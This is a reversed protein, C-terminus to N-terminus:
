QWDVTSIKLTGDTQSVTAIGRAIVKHVQTREVQYSGDPLPLILDAKPEAATQAGNKRWDEMVAQSGFYTGKLSAAAIFLGLSDVIRAPEGRVTMLPNPARVLRGDQVQHEVSPLTGDVAVPSVVQFTQLAWYLNVFGPWRGLEHLKGDQYHFVRTRNPASSVILVPLDGGADFSYARFGAYKESLNLYEVGNEGSRVVLSDPTAELQEPTGDGDLDGQAAASAKALASDSPHRAAAAKLTEIAQARKDDGLYAVGLYRAALAPVQGTASAVKLHEIASAYERLYAQAIGAWLHAQTPGPRLQLSREAAESAAPYAHLQLLAQAFLEWLQGDDPTAGLAGLLKRAAAGTDGAGLDREVAAVVPNQAHESPPKTPPDMVVSQAACGALNIMVVAALVVVASPIRRPVVTM